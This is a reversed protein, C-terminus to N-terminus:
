SSFAAKLNEKFQDCTEKRAKKHQTKALIAKVAVEEVKDPKKGIKAELLKKMKERLLKHKACKALRLIDEAM